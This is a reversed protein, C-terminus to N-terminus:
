YRCRICRLLLVLCLLPFIDDVSNELPEIFGSEFRVWYFQLEQSSNGADFGVVAGIWPGEPIAVVTSYPLNVLYGEVVRLFVPDCWLSTLFCLIM